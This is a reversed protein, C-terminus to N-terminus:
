FPVQSNLMAKRGLALHTRLEKDSMVLTRSAEEAALGLVDVAVVAARTEVPIPKLARVLEIAAEPFKNTKLDHYVKWCETLLLEVPNKDGTPKFKPLAQAVQKYSARTIQGAGEHSLTLSFAFRFVTDAQTVLQEDYFNIMAEDLTRLQAATAVLARWIKKRFRPDLGPPKKFRLGLHGPTKRAM